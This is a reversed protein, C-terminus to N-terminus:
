NFVISLQCNRGNFEKSLRWFMGYRSLVGQDVLFLYSARRNRVIIRIAGGADEVELIFIKHEIQFDFALHWYVNM